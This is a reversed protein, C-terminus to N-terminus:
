APWNWLLEVTSGTSDSTIHFQADILAARERMSGLGLGSSPLQPDFGCGNDHILLRLTDAEYALQIDFATAGGHHLINNISEQAIRYFTMVVDNPATTELGTCTFIADIEQRGRASDILQTLLQSLSTKVLSEPRLELLLTRMESMAARNLSVVQELLAFASAPSRAWARVAAEASVTSAFLVQSVADHLERALRHREEAASAIQAQESLYARELAQACQQAIASLLLTDENAFPRPGDFHLKLCGIVQDDILFPIAACGQLQEHRIRAEMQPYRRIFDDTNEVWVVKGSRIADTIPRSDVISINRPSTWATDLGFQDLMYIKQGQDRYSYVAGRPSHFLHEGTELIVHAIQKVTLSRSLQSTLEQLIQIHENARQSEARAAQEAELLEDKLRNAQQLEAILHAQRLTTVAENAAANLMLRNVESLQSEGRLGAVVYGEGANQGLPIVAVYLSEDTLPDTITQIDQAANEYFLQQFIRGIERAQEGQIDQQPTRVLELTNDHDVNKMSVYVLDLNLRTILVDALNAAIEQPKSDSWISPLSTLAVLDRLGRRLERIEDALTDM